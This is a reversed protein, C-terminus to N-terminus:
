SWRIWFQLVSCKLSEYVTDTFHLINGVSHYIWEWQDCRVCCKWNLAYVSFMITGYQNCLQLVWEVSMSKVSLYLLYAYSTVCIAVITRHLASLAPNMRWLFTFERLLLFANNILVLDNIHFVSCQEQVFQVSYMSSFIWLDSTGFLSNNYWRIQHKQSVLLM